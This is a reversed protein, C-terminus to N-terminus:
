RSVRTYSFLLPPSLTLHCAPFSSLSDYHFESVRSSLVAAQKELKYHTVLDDMLKKSGVKCKLTINQTTPVLALSIVAM